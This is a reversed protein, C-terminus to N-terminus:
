EATRRRCLCCRCKRKIWSQIM